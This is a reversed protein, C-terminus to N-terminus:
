SKIAVAYEVGDKIFTVDSVVELKEEAYMDGFLDQIVEKTEMVLQSPVLDVTDAKELWIAKSAHKCGSYTDSMRCDEKALIRSTTRANVKSALRNLERGLGKM